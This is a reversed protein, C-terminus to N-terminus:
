MEKAAAARTRAARVVPNDDLTMTQGTGAGPLVRSGIESGAAEARLGLLEKRVEDVPIGRAIMAGAREPM